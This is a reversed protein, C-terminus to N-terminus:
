QSLRPAVAAPATSRPVFARLSMLYLRAELPREYLDGIEILATPGRSRVHLLENGEEGLDSRFLAASQGSAVMACALQWAVDPRNGDGALNLILSGTPTLVKMATLLNDQTMFTPVLGHADCTDIVVAEFRRTCAELYALGDGTIWAVRPDLGFYRRALSEAAPDIDVVTVDRNRRALMTALSGGGGGLMLVNPADGVLLKIAHVYGFLSTGDPRALTQVGDDICYLRAGDQRREVIRVTGFPGERRALEKM